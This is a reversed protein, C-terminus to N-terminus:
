RPSDSEGLAVRPSNADHNRAYRAPYLEALTLGSPDNALMNGERIDRALETRVAIRTKGEVTPQPPFAFRAMRNVPVGHAGFVDGSVIAKALDDKVVARTTSSQFPTRNALDDDASSGLALASNAVAMVLTAVLLKNM